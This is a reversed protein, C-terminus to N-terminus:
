EENCLRTLTGPISELNNGYCSNSKENLNEPINKLSQNVSGGKEGELGPNQNEVGSQPFRPKGEDKTMSVMRKVNMPFSKSEDKVGIKSVQTRLKRVKKLNKGALATGMVNKGPSQSDGNKKPSGMTKKRGPSTKGRGSVGTTKM